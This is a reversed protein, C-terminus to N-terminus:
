GTPTIVIPAAMIYQLISSFGASALSLLGGILVRSFNENITFGLISLGPGATQLIQMIKDIAKHLNYLRLHLESDQPTTCIRYHIALQESLLVDPDKYISQISVGHWVCLLLYSAVVFCFFFSSVIFISVPTRSFIFDLALMLSLPVLFAFSASLIVEVRAQPKRGRRLLYSRLTLWGWLNEITQLEFHFLGLSSAATKSTLQTFSKAIGVRFKLQSVSKSLADLAVICICFNTVMTSLSVIWFSAPQASAYVTRSALRMLQPLFAYTGACALSLLALWRRERGKLHDQRALILNVLDKLLATGRAQPLGMPSVINEKEPHQPTSDNTQSRRHGQEVVEGAEENDDEGREGSGAASSRLEPPLFGMDMTEHWAYSTGTVQMKCMIRDAASDLDNGSTMELSCLLAEIFFCFFHLVLPLLVETLSLAEPQWIFYVFSSVFLILWYLTGVVFIGIRYLRSLRPGNPHRQGERLSYLIYVPLLLSAVTWRRLLKDWAITYSSVDDVNVQGKHKLDNILLLSHNPNASWFYADSQDVVPSPADPEPPISSPDIKLDPANLVTDFGNFLSMSLDEVHGTDRNWLM